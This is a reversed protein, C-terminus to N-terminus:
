RIDLDEDENGEEVEETEDTDEKVYDSDYEDSDVNDNVDGEEDVDGDLVDVENSHRRAVKRPKKKAVVKGASSASAKRKAVGKRASPVVEKRWKGGAKKPSTVETSPEHPKRAGSGGGTQHKHIEKEVVTDEEEVEDNACDIGSGEGEGLLGSM